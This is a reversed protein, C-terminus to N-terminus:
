VKPTVSRLCSVIEREFDGDPSLDDLSKGEMLPRLFGFGYDEVWREILSDFEEKTIDPKIAPGIIFKQLSNNFISTARAMRQNDETGPFSPTPEKVNENVLYMPLLGPRWKSRIVFESNESREAGPDSAWAFTSGHWKKPMSLTNDFDNLWFTDEIIGIRFGWLQPDRTDIIMHYVFSDGLPEFTTSAHSVRINAANAVKHTRGDRTTVIWPQTNTPKRVLTGDSDNELMITTNADTAQPSAFNGAFWTGLQWWGQGQGANNSALGFIGQSGVFNSSFTIPYTVALTNTISGVIVGAMNVSCQSNSLTVNQGPTYGGYQITADDSVIYVQNWAPYYVLGCSYPGGSGFAAWTWLIDSVGSADTTVFIFTGSTGVGGGVPSSLSVIPASAILNTISFVLSFLLTKM